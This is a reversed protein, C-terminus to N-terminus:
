SWWLVSIFFCMYIIFTNTHQVWMDLYWKTVLYKQRRYKEKSLLVHKNESDVALKYDVFAM